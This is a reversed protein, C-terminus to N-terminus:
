RSKMTGSSVKASSGASSDSGEDAHCFLTEVSELRLMEEKSGFGFLDAAAQNIDLIKGSRSTIFRVEGASDFFHKYKPELTHFSDRIKAHRSLESELQLSESVFSGGEAPKTM